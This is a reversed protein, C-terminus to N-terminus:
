SEEQNLSKQVPLDSIEVRVIALTKKFIRIRRNGDMKVFVVKTKDENSVELFGPGYWEEFLAIVDDRLNDVNLEENWPAYGEYQFEIPMLYIKDQEFRPYFRMKATNGSPMKPSYEVSLETPGNTLLGQKNLDWCTQFFDKRTMGLELGLFLENVQKGSSLEREELKEYETKCSFLVLIALVSTYKM